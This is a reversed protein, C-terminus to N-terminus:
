FARRLPRRTLPMRECLFKDLRRVDVVKAFCADFGSVRAVDPTIGTALSLLLVVLVPRRPELVRFLFTVSNGFITLDVLLADYAKADVLRQVDYPTTAVDVDYGLDRLGRTVLPEQIRDRDAVLVHPVAHQQM